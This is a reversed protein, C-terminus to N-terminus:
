PQVLLRGFMKFHSVHGPVQCIYFYQGAKEAKFVASKTQNTDIPSAGTGANSNWLAPAGEIPFETVAFNHPLQGVTTVVIRIREGAKLEVTPGPSTVPGGELGFGYPGALSLEGATLRIERDIRDDTAMSKSPRLFPLAVSAVVGIVVLVGIIMLVRKQM